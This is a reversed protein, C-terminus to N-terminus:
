KQTCNSNSPLIVMYRGFPKGTQFDTLQGKTNGKRTHHRQVRKWRRGGAIWDGKGEKTLM